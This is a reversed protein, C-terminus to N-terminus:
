CQEYQHVKHLELATLLFYSNIENDDVTYNIIELEM